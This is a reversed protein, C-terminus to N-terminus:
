SSCKTEKVSVVHIVCINVFDKGELCKVDSGLFTNLYVNTCCLYTKAMYIWCWLCLRCQKCVRWPCFVVNNLSTWNWVTCPRSLGKVSPKLEHMKMKASLTTMPSLIVLEYCLSKEWSVTYSECLWLFSYKQSTFIHYFINIRCKVSKFMHNLSIKM